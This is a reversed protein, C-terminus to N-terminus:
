QRRLQAELWRAAADVMAPELAHGADFLELTTSVGIAKLRSAADHAEEVVLTDDDRGHAILAHLARAAIADHPQLDPLLRGAIMFFGAVREPATIAASAALVGGQSFGGIWTDRPSIGFRSQLQDIFAVLKARADAEEDEVLQVGDESIGVRYWGLRDGSISRPGRPFVVLTDAPVRGGLVALQQEDGGVGHLLVLLARPADPRPELIAHSFAYDAADILDGSRRPPNPM